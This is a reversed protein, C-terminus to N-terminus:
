KPSENTRASSADIPETKEFEELGQEVIRWAITAVPSLARYAAHINSVRAIYGDISAKLRPYGPLIVALSIAFAILYRQLGIPEALVICKALKDHLTQRRRNFLMFLFGFGLLGSSLAILTQRLYARGLGLRKGSLSRVSLGLLYKGPSAGYRSETFALFLTSSLFWALGLVALVLGLACLCASVLEATIGEGVLAESAFYRVINSSLREAIHNLLPITLACLGLDLLFASARKLFGAPIDSPDRSSDFNM